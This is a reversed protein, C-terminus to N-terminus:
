MPIPVHTEGAVNKSWLIKGGAAELCFLDGWRSLWYIQDGDFTPTGTTGGEFYKDGLEAAYSHQWNPKGTLADFCYVTDQGKEHGVTCARGKSVVVSSFGLGVKARWAVAPGASPWHDLWGKEDSVGNRNPGRYQPWDSGTVSFIVFCGFAGLGCIFAHRLSQIRVIGSQM